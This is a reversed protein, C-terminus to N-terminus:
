ESEWWLLLDDWVREFVGGAPVDGLAALSRETLLDEAM